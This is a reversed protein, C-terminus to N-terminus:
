AKMVKARLLDLISDGEKMPTPNETEEEEEEMEELQWKYEELVSVLFNVRGDLTDTDIIPSKGSLKFEYKEIKLEQM